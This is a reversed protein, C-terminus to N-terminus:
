LPIIEPPINSRVLFTVGLKTGLAPKTLSQHLAINDFSAM